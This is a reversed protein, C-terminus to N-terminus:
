QLIRMSIWFEMSPLPQLLHERLQWFIVGIWPEGFERKKNSLYGGAPAPSNMPDLDERGARSQLHVRPHYGRLTKLLMLEKLEACGTLGLVYTGSFELASVSSATGILRGAKPEWVPSSSNLCLWTGDLSPRAHDTDASERTTPRM